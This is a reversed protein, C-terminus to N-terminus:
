NEPLELNLERKMEKFRNRLTVETVDADEAIEKQTKKEGNLLCAIYLVAAAIGGRGRGAVLHRRKAQRLIEIAIGQTEGSIEAKEAIKSIYNLPDEIPVRIDLEWLLFRYCRAIEKEDVLSVDAIEGPTRPIRLLRCAMYVVATLMGLISRGQILDKDVAKRYIVATKEKVSSPLNLKDSLRSLEAMAGAINREISSHVKSRKQWKRLRWMLDKTEPSIRRGRADFNFPSIYTPLGKNHISYVEPAGVRRKSLKEERTFARWEPGKDVMQESIVLGCDSCILEGTEYDQVLNMSGCEPCRDISSM